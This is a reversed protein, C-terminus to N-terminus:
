REKKVNKLTWGTFQRYVAFEDGGVRGIVSDAGLMKTFLGATKSLVVDGEGHGLTDNVKKFNDMDIMIFVHTATESKEDLCSRVVEGFSVKNMLGTLQDYEAKQKLEEIAGSFPNYIRRLVAGGTIVVLLALALTTVLAYLILRDVEKFIESENIYSVVRWGNSCQAVSIVYGESNTQYEFDDNEKSINVEIKDGVCKANNSYMVEESDNILCVRMDKLEHSLNVVSSLESSYFSTVIVANENLKKVYFLRFHQTPYGDM